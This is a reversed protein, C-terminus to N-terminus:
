ALHVSEADNEVHRVEVCRTDLMDELERSTRDDCRVRSRSSEAIVM